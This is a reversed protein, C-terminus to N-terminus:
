KTKKLQKHAKIGWNFNILSCAGIGAGCIYNVAPEANSITGTAFGVGLLVFTGGAILSANRNFKILGKNTNIEKM